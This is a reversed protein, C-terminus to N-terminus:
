IVSRGFRLAAALRYKNLWRGALTKRLRAQSTETPVSCSAAWPTRFCTLGCRAFPEPSVHPLLPALSRTGRCHGPLWSHGDVMCMHSLASLHLLISERSTELAAATAQDFLWECGAARLLDECRELAELVILRRVDHESGNNVECCLATCAPPLNVAEAASVHRLRAYETTYGRFLRRTLTYALEQLGPERHKRQADSWLAAAQEASHGEYGSALEEFACGIVILLVGLHCSHMWDGVVSFKGLDAADWLLIGTTSHATRRPYWRGAGPLKPTPM